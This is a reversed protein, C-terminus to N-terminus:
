ESDVVGVGLLVVILESVVGRVVTSTGSGSSPSSSPHRTQYDIGISRGVKQTCIQDTSLKFYVCHM